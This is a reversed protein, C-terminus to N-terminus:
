DLLYVSGALIVISLVPRFGIGLINFPMAAGSTSLRFLRGEQVSEIARPAVVIGPLLHVLCGAQTEERRICSKPNGPPQKVLFGGKRGKPAHSFM